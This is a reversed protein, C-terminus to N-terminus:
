VHSLVPPTYTDIYAALGAELADVAASARPDDGEADAVRDRLLWLAAHAANVLLEQEQLSHATLRLHTAPTPTTM